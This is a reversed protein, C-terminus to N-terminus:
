ELKKHNDCTFIHLSVYIHWFISSALKPFKGFIELYIKNKQSLKKKLKFQIHIDPFLNHAHHRGPTNETWKRSNNSSGLLLLYAHKESQEKKFTSLAIKRNKYAFKWTRLEKPLIIKVILWYIIYNNKKTNDLRFHKM